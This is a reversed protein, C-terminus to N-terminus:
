GWLNFGFMFVEVLPRAILGFVFLIFIWLALATVVRGLADLLNM